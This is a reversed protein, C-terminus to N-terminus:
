RRSRKVGFFRRMRYRFLKMRYDKRHVGILFFWRNDRIDGNIVSYRFNEKWAAYNFSLQDRRSGGTIERWWREMARIVDPKNHRRILVGGCILGYDRPYGDKRYRDVQTKMLELDDKPKGEKKGLEIISDYEKYICSRQDAMTQNHDFAAMDKSGMLVDIQPVINNEMLFNGDIWISIDHDPFFRHPTIKYLKASRVPDESTPVVKRVEWPSRRLPRDSFCVYDVGKIKPQPLLGDYGGFIATYIVIKKESVLLRENPVM